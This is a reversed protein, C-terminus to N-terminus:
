RPAPLFQSQQTLLARIVAERSAPLGEMTRALVQNSLYGQTIPNMLVRGASATIPMQAISTWLGRQATGSNPLPSMVGAGARALESFDGEGRAYAGRNEAAVTNRLNAPVIQGEATAEGARSASKEIVKQAGYQQRAVDWAERDAPSLNRRMANDLADRIDRLAGSLTPDTDRLSNSQGSLRSRMDQYEPGSMRGAQVHQTIDDIYGEVVARQQSPPVRQYQRVAQTLDTILQNDPIIANRAALTQFENGLRAQNAALVEPTADPGTGARRVAAETFQRQGEDTIREARRGAGPGNGLFDEAYRLSKNGTAQGATLSTVGEDALVDVLRQRAPSAPLPTVLRSLAQPTLGGAVAGAVKGYPEGKEGFAAKAREGGYQSGVGGGTAMLAKAVLGGPGAAMSPIFEGISHLYEGTRTQPKHPEEGEYFNRQIAEGVSKSTPIANLASQSRDPAKSEPLGLTREVLNVGKAIGTAGLDTIDGLFGGISAAGKAVGADLSKYADNVDIGSPPKDPMNAKIAAAIQDDSMGDPFEVIGMSPVEIRQM